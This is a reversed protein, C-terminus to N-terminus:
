LLKSFMFLCSSDCESSKIIYQTLTDYNFNKRHIAIYIKSSRQYVNGHVLVQRAMQPKGSGAQKLDYEKAQALTTINKEM